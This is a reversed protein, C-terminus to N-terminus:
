GRELGLYSRWRVVRDAVADAEADRCCRELNNMMRFLTFRDTCPALYAETFKLGNGELLSALAGEEYLRGRNYCDIFVPGDVTRYRVLYHGPM